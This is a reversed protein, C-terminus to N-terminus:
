QAILRIKPFPALYSIYKTYNVLLFNCVPKQNTDVNSVKFPTVVASARQRQPLQAEQKIILANRSSSTLLGALTEMRLRCLPPFGISVDAQCSSTSRSRWWQGQSGRRATHARTHTTYTHETLSSLGNVSLIDVNTVHQYRRINLIQRICKLSKM